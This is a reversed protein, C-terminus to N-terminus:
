ADSRARLERPHPQLYAQGLEWELSEALPVFDQLVTRQSQADALIDAALAPTTSQLLPNTASKSPKRSSSSPRM